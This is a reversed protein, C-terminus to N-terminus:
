LCNREKDVDIMHPNCSTFRAWQNSCVIVMNIREVGEMLIPGTPM